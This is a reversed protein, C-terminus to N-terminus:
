TKITDLCERVQYPFAAKQCSFDALVTLTRFKNACEEVYGSRPLLELSDMLVSNSSSVTSNQASLVMETSSRIFRISPKLFTLLEQIISVLRKQCSM